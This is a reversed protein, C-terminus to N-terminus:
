FRLRQRDINGSFKPVVGGMKGATEAEGAETSVPNIRLTASSRAETWQTGSGSARSMRYILSMRLV